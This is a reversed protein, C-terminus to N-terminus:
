ALMPAYTAMAQARESEFYRQALMAGLVRVVYGYEHGTQTMIFGILDNVWVKCQKRRGAGKIEEDVDARSPDLFLGQDNFAIRLESLFLVPDSKKMEFIGVEPTWPLFKVQHKIGNYWALKEYDGQEQWKSVHDDLVDEDLLAFSKIGPRLLTNHRKLFAMVERFGGIPVTQGKPYSFPKAGLKESLVASLLPEAAADAFVDEVYVVIDAAREEISALGGLVMSPYPAEVLVVEDDQWCLFFTRNRPATKILSVSHTSFFVTLSREEARRVLYHYLKVQASPHLAMELEDILILSEAPCNEIATVLNLICLEGISFNRESSYKRPTGDDEVFVYAPNVGRTINVRRLKNFRDTSFIENAAAVVNPEVTRIRQPVFDEERPTIRDANAGVFVVSPYKFDELVDANKKPTPVWRVGRRRYTVERNQVRYTVTAGQFNDLRESESSARFHLAFANRNGIRQLAALVSTKGTGNEGTLLWVGPPPLKFDLSRVNKLNKISVQKM